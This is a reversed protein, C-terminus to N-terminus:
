PAGAAPGITHRLLESDPIETTGGGLGPVWEGPEKGIRDRATAAISDVPLAVPTIRAREVDAEVFGDILFLDPSGPNGPRILSDNVRDVSNPM